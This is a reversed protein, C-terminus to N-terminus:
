QERTPRGAAVWGQRVVANGLDRSRVARAVNIAERQSSYRGAAVLYTCCFILPAQRSDLVEAATFGAARMAGLKEDALQRASGEQQPVSEVVVIWPRDDGLPPVKKKFAAGDLVVQVSRDEASPSFDRYRLLRFEWIQGLWAPLNRKKLAKPTLSKGTFYGEAVVVKGSAPVEPLKLGPDALIEVWTNGGNHRAPTTGVFSQPADTSGPPRFAIPVRVLEPAGSKAIQARQSIWPVLDYSSDASPGSALAHASALILLGPALKCLWLKSSV